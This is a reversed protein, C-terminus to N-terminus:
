EKTESNKIRIHNIWNDQNAYTVRTTLCGIVPSIDPRDSKCLILGQATSKQFQEAMDKIITEQGKATFDLKM